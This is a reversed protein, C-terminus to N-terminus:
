TRSGAAESGGGPPSCGRRPPEASAQSAALPVGGSACRPLDCEGLLDTEVPSLVAGRFTGPRYVTCGKLGWDHARLLLGALAAPTTAAAVQLTKSIASDVHRQVERQLELQARPAIEEATPFLERPLPAAGQARRWLELSRPALRFTQLAGGHTRVRREYDLAFLPEIGSSVNHALLSISGTPAVATLHSNRIGHAAIEDRLRPPLTAVFGGALYREREFWPFAGKQRALEISAAYAAHTITRMAEAAARSAEESGYRLGLMALADALGTCGLGIRRAGRAAREQAPLPFRTVDLVDDLFRVALGATEALAQHDLAAAGSWPARVFEVLNVSGLDCAGYPPLPLEGCPNTASIQERYGLNNLRNITDVFLLGPESRAGAAAVIKEWLTRARPRAVVRCPAEREGGSWRREVTPAERGNPRVAAPFVLPWEEDREVAALFADSVLVSLNFSALAGPEAKADVFAELDPHDCRLTGMMAGPRVDGALVTACMADWLRLFSVPGSARRGVGHAMWGAPRLTSFDYGIGGGQQLTLAGERLAAFIGALSDEILGMVFCNLLTVRRGSGAGALIRGGPLFRFGDLLGLFRNAWLGPDRPEVAAVAAAVRRWSEAISSEFSGDARERRYRAEWVRRSVELEFGDQM